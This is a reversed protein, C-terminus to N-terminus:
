MWTIKFGIMILEIFSLPRTVIEVKGTRVAQIVSRVDQESEVLTYTTDFQRFMHTDSSGIMPIGQERCIRIAKRNFNIMPHYYHSFEVADFLDQHQEFKRNLCYSKPFYPHPAIILFNPNKAERLDQFDRISLHEKRANILIVHKDEVFIEVGPLILIGRERAYADLEDQFTIVDHNTISLLGYGKQAALDILEENSYSIKDAPDSDTHIHFDAKLM